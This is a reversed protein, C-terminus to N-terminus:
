PGPEGPAVRIEAEYRVQPTVFLYEVTADYVAPTDFPDGPNPGLAFHTTNITGGQIAMSYNGRLQNGNEFWLEYGSSIGNALWMPTGSTGARTLAHCREGAVVGDTVDIQFEGVGSVDVRCEQDDGAATNVHVVVDSGAEWVQLEWVTGVSENAEVRFPSGSPPLDAPETTIVFGRTADVNSALQWTAEGSENEFPSGGSANDAIRRGTDHDVYSVNVLQGSRAQQTGGATGLDAISDRLSGGLDSENHVNVYGIAAGVSREVQHQYAVAESSGAVEGRSALNETFIASNVVLALAVFAIALTFAAILLIQGRDNLDAM